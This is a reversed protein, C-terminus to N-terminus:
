RVARRKSTDATMTVMAYTTFVICAENSPPMQDTSGATLRVIQRVRGDAIAPSPVVPTFPSESPHLPYSPHQPYPNPPPPTAADKMVGVCLCYFLLPRDLFGNLATHAHLM